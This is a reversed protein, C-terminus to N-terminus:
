FLSRNQIKKSFGNAGLLLVLAILAKFLGVATAYSLRLGRIGTRYVYLDLVNSASENLPNNLVFMQDFNTNLAGSIALILLITITGAISPLTIYRIKQFRNAGDIVAADYLAPSIGSIAALYIIAGWGMEKWTESLVAMLWFGDPSGLFPLPESILGTNTLLENVLGNESFWTSMMGGLVVWSLFHPLYSITQMWRKFGVQTIENLLIAFIIPIPFGILLKLLSIGLTNRLSGFFEPDRFLEQFHVLGVWPASNITHITQFEKFAIIIGYMPIYNFIIMWLVGPIAMSQLAKQRSVKKLLIPIHTKTSKSPPSISSSASVSQQANQAEPAGGAAHKGIVKM